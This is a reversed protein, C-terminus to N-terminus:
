IKEVILVDTVDVVKVSDGTPIATEHDRARADFIKLAGRVTLQVKGVTGPAISLYVSGTTGVANALYITGDSQLHRSTQFIKAIILMTGLGAATAIAAAAFPNSINRASLFGVLGFMLLFASISHLSVMKLASDPSDGIADTDIDADAIDEGAGIGIIVMLSRIIFLAGGVVACFLFTYDASSLDKFM